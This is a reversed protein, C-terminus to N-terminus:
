LIFWQLQSLPRLGFCLKWWTEKCYNNWSATHIIDYQILTCKIACWQKFSALIGCCLIMQRWSLAKVFLLVLVKYNQRTHLQQILFGRGIHILSLWPPSFSSSSEQLWQNKKKLTRTWYKQCKAECESEWHMRELNLLRSLPSLALAFAKHGHMCAGKGHVCMSVCKRLDCHKLNVKFGFNKQFAQFFILAM